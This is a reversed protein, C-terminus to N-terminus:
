RRGARPEFKSVSALKEFLDREEESLRKPVAIQVSAYLDGREAAPSGAIREPALYDATGMFVNSPTLRRHEPAAVLGFDTLM